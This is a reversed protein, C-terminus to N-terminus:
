YEFEDEVLLKYDILCELVIMKMDILFKKILDWNFFFMVLLLFVIVFVFIMMFGMVVFCGKRKKKM